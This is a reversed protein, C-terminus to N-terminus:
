LKRRHPRLGLYEPHKRRLEHYKQPDVKALRAMRQMTSESDLCEGEKCLDSASFFLNVDSARLADIAQRVTQMEGTESKVTLDFEGEIPTGDKDTAQVLEARPKLLSVVQAPNFARGRVAARELGSEVFHEKLKTEYRNARESQSAVEAKLAELENSQQDDNNDIM